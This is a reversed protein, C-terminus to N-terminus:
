IRAFTPIVILSLVNDFKASLIFFLTDPTSSIQTNVAIVSLAAFMWTAIVNSFNYNKKIKCM